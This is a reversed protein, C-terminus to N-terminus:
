RRGATAMMALSGDSQGERDTNAGFRRGMAAEVFRFMGSRLIVPNGQSRQLAVNCVALIRSRGRRFADLLDNEFPGRADFHDQLAEASVACIVPEGDVRVVFRVEPPSGHFEPDINPFFCDM